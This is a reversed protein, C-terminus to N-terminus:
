HYETTPSFQSCYVTNSVRGDANRECLDGLAAKDEDGGLAHCVARSGWERCGRPSVVRERVFQDDRTSATVGDDRGDRNTAARGEGKARRGEGRAGSSRRCNM